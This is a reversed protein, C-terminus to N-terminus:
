QLLRGKLLAFEDDNITGAKRLENLKSLEDAVGVSAVTKPADRKVVSLQAFVPSLYLRMGDPDLNSVLLFLETGKAAIQVLTKTTTHTTLLNILSAAAAGVLFGEVGFGGGVAGGGKTVTGPGGINVDTIRNFTISHENIGDLDTLHLSDSSLSLLLSKGSLHEWGAGGQAVVKIERGGSRAAIGDLLPQRQMAKLKQAKSVAELKMMLRVGSYPAREGYGWLKEALQHHRKLMWRGLPIGALGVVGLGISAVAAAGGDKIFISAILGLVSLALLGGGGVMSAIGLIWILKGYLKIVADKM